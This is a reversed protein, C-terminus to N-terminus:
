QFYSMLDELEEPKAIIQKQKDLIFFSPTSNIGYSTAYENEWKNMGLVHIWNPMSIRIKDFDEREDELAVAIVELGVFKETYEYLKPIDNLCHSCSTSWFAVIYFDSNELESLTTSRGDKTLVIEPATTGIAGVLMKDIEDIFRDSQYQEPLKLYHGSKIYNVLVIDQQQALAYVLSSLIESKLDVNEGIRGAVVNIAEKRIKNYTEEDEADNLYFVFEYVKDIFFSSNRLTVNSFDVSDFFHNQISQLYLEPAEIIYDANYSKNSKIFDSALMGISLEEFSHQLGNIKVVEEAYNKKIRKKNSSDFYALQLSDVIEQQESIAKTYAQYVKNEKSASFYVSEDPNSPNFSVKISEKNYLLEIFEGKQLDYFLRYIGSESDAPFGFKFSNGDSKSNSVYMQQLGKIKYLQLQQITSNPVLKVYLSDQANMAISSFLCLFLVRFLM